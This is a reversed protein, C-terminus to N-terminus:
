STHTYSNARRTHYDRWAPTPRPIQDSGDALIPQPRPSEVVPERAPAWEMTVPVDGSTSTTVRVELQGGGVIPAEWEGMILALGLDEDAGTSLRSEPGKLVGESPSQAVKAKSRTEMITPM